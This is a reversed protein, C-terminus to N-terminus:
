QNLENDPSRSGKMEPNKLFEKMEHVTSFTQKDNKWDNNLYTYHIINEFQVKSTSNFAHKMQILGSPSAQFINEKIEQLFMKREHDNEYNLAINTKKCIQEGTLKQSTLIINKMPNSQFFTQTSVPAIGCKLHNWHYTSSSHTIIYNGHFLFECWINEFNGNFDIIVIQPLNNLQEFFSKCKQRYDLYEIENKFTPISTHQLNLVIQVFKVEFHEYLWKTIESFDSLLTDDLEQNKLVIPMINLGKHQLDLFARLRKLSQSFIEM